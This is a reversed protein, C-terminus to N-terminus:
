KGDLMRVPDDSQSTNSGQSTVVTPTARQSMMMSQRPTATPRVSTGTIEVARDTNGHTSIQQQARPLSERNSSSTSDASNLTPAEDSYRASLDAM